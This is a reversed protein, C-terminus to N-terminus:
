LLFYYFLWVGFFVLFFFLSILGFPYFNNQKLAIICFVFGLIEIIYTNFFIWLYKSYNIDFNHSHKVWTTSLVNKIGFDQMLDRILHILYFVSLIITLIKEALFM